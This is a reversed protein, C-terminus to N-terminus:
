SEDKANQASIAVVQLTIAHRTFALGFRAPLNVEPEAWRAFGLSVVRAAVEDEFSM